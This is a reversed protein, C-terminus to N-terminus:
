LYLCHANLYKRLALKFKAKENKLITVSRPLSNFIKIGAYFTSNQYCSLNANPRHLHHKNSTNINHTSSSTQVNEQNSVTFNMLSFIYQCPVPLSDLQKFLSRCSSRPRAGAIIRVIEKRLKKRCNSSNGRFIIGCKIISHFYACYILKLTNINSIHVM